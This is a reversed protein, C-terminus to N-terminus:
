EPRPRGCTSLKIRDAVRMKPEKATDVKGLDGEEAGDVRDPIESEIEETQPGGLEENSDM